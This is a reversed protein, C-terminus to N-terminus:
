SWYHSSVCLLHSVLRLRETWLFRGEIAQQEHFFHARFRSAGPRDIFRFPVSIPRWFQLSRSLLCQCTYKIRIRNLRDCTDTPNQPSFRKTILARLRPARVVSSTFPVSSCLQSVPIQNGRTGFSGSRNGKAALVM